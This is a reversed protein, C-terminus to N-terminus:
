DGKFQRYRAELETNEMMTYISSSALTSHGLINMVDPGSGNKNIIRHGMAHRLSHANVPSTIGARESYRRLMEGVGKITFRLGAKSSVLSIFLAESKTFKSRVKVWKKLHENTETTWFIERIPRRGKSKETLIVARKREFDVDGINIACLEGNRAGSDWLLSILALNRIHRPDKTMRPIAGILKQYTEESAVRPIKYTKMPVPILWPDVVKYGQRVFFEFFKKLATAKSMMSNPDYNFSKMLHFWKLVHDLTVDEINCDHMFIAFARIIQDYGKMTCERVKFTRWSTFKQLAESLKM